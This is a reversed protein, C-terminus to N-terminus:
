SDGGADKDAAFKLIERIISSKMSRGIKSIKSELDM